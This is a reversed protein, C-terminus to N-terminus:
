KQKAEVIEKGVSKANKKEGNLKNVVPIDKMSEPMMSKQEDGIDDNNDSFKKLLEEYRLFLEDAENINKIYKKMNKLFVTKNESEDFEISNNKLISKLKKEIEKFDKKILNNKDM